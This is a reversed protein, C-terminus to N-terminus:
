GRMEEMLRRLVGEDWEPHEERVRKLEDAAPEAPGGGLGGVGAVAALCVLLATYKVEPISAAGYASIEFSRAAAAPGESWHSSDVLVAGGSSLYRALARNGDVGLVSNIFVSADSVLYVRGDGVPIEAVVPFPGPPGGAASQGPAQLYSFPSSWALVRAGPDAVTLTTAYDMAVASVGAVEVKPAVVLWPDKFNFLPDVLLGGTFRSGLGLGQLLSNGSGFDDSVVLTGGGRVFSSILSSEHATFPTTPGIEMLVYGAGKPPLAGVGPLVTANELSVFSSLGNWATNAPSFDNPQQLVNVSPTLYVVLCVFVAGILVGAALSSRNLRM